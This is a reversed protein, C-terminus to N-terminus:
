KKNLKNLLQKFKPKDSGADPDILDAAGFKRLENDAKEFIDKM